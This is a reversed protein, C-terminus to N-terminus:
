DQWTVVIFMIQETYQGGGRIGESLTESVSVTETMLNTEIVPDIETLELVPISLPEKHRAAGLLFGGM